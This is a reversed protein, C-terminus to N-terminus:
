RRRERIRPPNEFSRRPAYVHVGQFLGIAALATVAAVIAAALPPVLGLVMATCLAGALGATLGLVVAVLRTDFGLRRLRHSVHDTGGSLPSRGARVRSFVVVGTDVIAVFAPLLLGAVTTDPGRGTVLVIASCTLGFGIFLSGTDGMFMRAPAWNHPLFGLAAGALVVLFLGFAAEGRLFAVVALFAASVATVAGLAGDMNDLLNYSNTVVVIWVVTLPGDAWGGTVTLEVGALVVGVAGVAEVTLRTVAPLAAIDDILGLAAVATAALLIATLRLDALGGGAVTTLVTVLAIGVGGLYPTARKHAKHGGPRDTMGWRLALRKLPVATVATMLFAAACAASTLAGSM